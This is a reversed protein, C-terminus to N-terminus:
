RDAGSIFIDDDDGIEKNLTKHVIVRAFEICSNLDWNEPSGIDQNSSSEVAEYVNAIEDEYEKIVMQRRVTMKATYLFPKM